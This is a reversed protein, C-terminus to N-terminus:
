PRAAPPNEVRVRRGVSQRSQSANPLQEPKPRPHVAYDDGRRGEAEDDQGNPGLSYLRYDDADRRYTFPGGTYPDKPLQELYKPVLSDLTEPYENKDRHYLELALLIVAGNYAARITTHTLLISDVYDIPRGGLISDGLHGETLEAQNPRWTRYEPFDMAVAARFEDRHRIVLRRAAALHWRLVANGVFHEPGSMNQTRIERTNDMVRWRYELAAVPPKLGRELERFQNLVPSLAAASKVARAWGDFRWMALTQLRSGSWNDPGDTMLMAGLRIADMFCAAAAADDGSIRQTQVGRAVLAMGLQFLQTERPQRTEWLAGQQVEFDSWQIPERYYPKNFAERIKEIAPGCADIYAVFEPDDDPRRIQLAEGLSDPEWSYILNPYEPTGASMPDPAKPLLKEAEELTFYANDPSSRMALEEPTEPPMILVPKRAVSVYAILAGLCLVACVFLAINRVVKRNHKRM